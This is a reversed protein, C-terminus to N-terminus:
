IHWGAILSQEIKMARTQIMAFTNWTFVLTSHSWSDWENNSTPNIHHLTLRTLFTYVSGYNNINTNRILVWSGLATPSTLWLFTSVPPYGRERELGIDAGAAPLTQVAPCLDRWDGCPCCTLWMELECGTVLWPEPRPQQAELLPPLSASALDKDQHRPPRQIWIQM